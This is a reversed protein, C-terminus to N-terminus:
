TLDLALVNEGEMVEGTEEFGLTYYFPAPSGDGPVYSTKFITANPLKRVHEIVHEMALYGYGKGQHEKDIMLRWLFYEPKKEDAFIMVFGVPTENNYIGRFWAEKSFYAEAISNANPAVFSMQNDAVELSFIPWCTEGTIEKLTISTKEKNM